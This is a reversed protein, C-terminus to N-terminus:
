QAALFLHVPMCVSVIGPRVGSFPRLTMARAAAFDPEVLDDAPFMRPAFLVDVRALLEPFKEALEHFLRSSLRCPCPVQAVGRLLLHDVYTDLGPFIRPFFVGVVVSGPDCASGPPFGALFVGPKVDM